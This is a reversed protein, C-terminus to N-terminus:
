SSTRPTPSSAVDEELFVCRWSWRALDGSPRAYKVVGVDIKSNGRWAVSRRILAARQHSPIEERDYAEPTGTTAGRWIAVDEKRDFPIRDWRIMEPLRAWHRQYNLPLLVGGDSRNARNARATKVFIPACAATASADGFQAPLPTEALRMEDFFAALERVRAATWKEDNSASRREAAAAAAALAARSDFCFPADNAPLTTPCRFPRRDRSSACRAGGDAGDAGPAWRGLYYRHKPSPARAVPSLCFLTAARTSGRPVFGGDRPVFGGDRPKRRPARSAARDEPEPAVTSANACEARLALFAHDVPTFKRPAKAASGPCSGLLLAGWVLGRM